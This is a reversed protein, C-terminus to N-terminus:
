SREAAAVRSRAAAAVSVFDQFLRQALPDGPMREPHWQVGVIWHAKDAWEVGEVVGDESRCSVILSDGPKGIAQHHSSNIRVSTEGALKAIRSGEALRARHELDGTKAGADLDTKGHRVVSGTESPIDQILTGHCFVNLIQCGYCIALVPKGARLAHELIALDTRDREPDLTVTKSHRAAGYSKPNVDAPSGPLVFADFNKLVEQLDPDRLELSIPEADGGAKQVSERYLDWKDRKGERQEQLTRWPIGVRAKNPIDTPM